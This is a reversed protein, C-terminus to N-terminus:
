NEDQLDQGINQDIVAQSALRKVGVAWRWSFILLCYQALGFWLGFLTLGASSLNVWFPIRSELQSLNAEARNVAAALQVIDSEVEGLRIDIRTMTQQSAQKLTASGQDLETLTQSIRELTQTTKALAQPEGSQGTSGSLFPLSNTLSVAEQVLTVASGASDATIRIQSLTAAYKDLVPELDGASTQLEARLDHALLNAAALAHDSVTLGLQLSRAADQLGRTLPPSILWAGLIQGVALILGIGGLIVGLVGLIRKM